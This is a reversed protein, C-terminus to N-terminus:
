KLALELRAFDADGGPLGFRLWDPRDTFDRVLVGARGLRQYIAAADQHEVLRFLDTGGVVTFGASQLIGDLRERLGALAVRTGDIWAGDSLARTGTEIAPGSVAWPGLRAELAGILDPPGAAFGLRLGALGFFKGFSRLVILGPCGTDGALSIAPAVDAFAEDVVLLGGAEALNACLSKLSSRDFLRGDPNNPNSVVVIDADGASEPADIDVVRHGAARWVHAHEGYTPGVVAVRASEALSPLVQILAQTGSAACMAAVDPVGYARRAATLLDDLAGSSPLRSFAANSVSIDPYARPNIGTSLDLWGDTPAGFIATARSLNGGHAPISSPSVSEM